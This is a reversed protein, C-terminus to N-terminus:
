VAWHPLSWGNSESSYWKCISNTHTHIYFIQCPAVEPTNRVHGNSLSSVQSSIATCFSCDYLLNMFLPYVISRVTCKDTKVPIHCQWMLANSSTKSGHGRSFFQKKNVNERKIGTHSKSLLCCQLTKLFEIILLFFIRIQIFCHKLYKWVNWPEWWLYPM